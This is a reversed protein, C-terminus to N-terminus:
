DSATRIHGVTLSACKAYLGTEPVEMLTNARQITSLAAVTSSVRIRRPSNSVSWCLAMRQLGM